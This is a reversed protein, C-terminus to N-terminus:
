SGPREPVTLGTAGVPWAGSLDLTTTTVIWSRDDTESPLESKPISDAVQQVANILEDSWGLQKLVQRDM